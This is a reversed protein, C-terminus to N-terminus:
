PGWAPSHVEAGSLRNTLREGVRGDVSAVMLVGRGGFVAGYIIMSSNPAFSPSTDEQGYPLTRLAGTGLNMVAIHSHGNETHVLAMLKGDPSIRPCTNDSGDFTLQQPKGGAVNVRYIQTAGDHSSAFYLNEGDPSWAAGGDVPDSVTIQRLQKTALNMLYIEPEGSAMALTLALSRGDPSFAPMADVSAQSILLTLHGSALDQLYVGSQLQTGELSTYAIQKGDPSWAPSLIPKKSTMVQQADSGDADAVMLSYQQGSSDEVYTIRTNFAGRRNTIKQFITDSILHASYRLRSPVTAVSYGLVQTGTAVDFLQFEVAYKGTDGSRIRGILLDSVGLPRWDAFNVASPDTPKEPMSARPVAKFLGSRILDAGVVDAVDIDPAAGEGLWAFPVIAVLTVPPQETTSPSATPAATAHTIRALSNAMPSPVTKEQHRPLAPAPRPVKAAPVSSVASSPHLTKALVASASTDSTAAKAAPVKSSAPAPERQVVQQSVDVPQRLAMYVIAAILIGAASGIVSWLPASLRRSRRSGFAEARKLIPVAIIEMASEATATAVMGRVTAVLKELQSDLAPGFADLWHTTGLFYEMSETPVINEIRVPIIGVNKSVAREVERRVQPSNNSATSLILVMARSTNIAKIISGGWDHGPLIDRPAMWVRIGAQELATCIRETAEKDKSSHSVFVDHPM